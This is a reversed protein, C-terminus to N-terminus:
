LSFRRKMKDAVLLLIHPPPPVSPHLEGRKVAQERSIKFSCYQSFKKSREQVPQIIPLINIIKKMRTYFKYACPEYM